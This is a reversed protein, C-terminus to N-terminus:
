AIAVLERTDDAGPAPPASITIVAALRSAEMGALFDEVEEITFREDLPDFVPKPTPPPSPQPAPKPPMMGSRHRPTPRQARDLRLQNAMAACVLVVALCAALPLVPSLM